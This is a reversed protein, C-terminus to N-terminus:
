GNVETSVLLDSCTAEYTPKLFILGLPPLVLSLSFPFTQASIQDAWVGGLNGVGSGGYEKADSNLVERWFGPYPVGVRYGERVVPTFHAVVLLCEKPDKGKRLFALVGSDADDAIM